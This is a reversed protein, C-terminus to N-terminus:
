EYRSFEKDVAIIYKADQISSRLDKIEVIASAHDFVKAEKNSKTWLTVGSSSTEKYFKNRNECFLIKPGNYKNKALFKNMFDICQEKSKSVFLQKRTSNYSDGLYVRFDIGAPELKLLQEFGSEVVSTKFLLNCNHKNVDRLLEFYDEFEELERSDNYYVSCLASYIAAGAIRAKQEQTFEKILKSDVFAIELNEAQSCLVSSLSKDKWEQMEKGDRYLKINDLAERVRTEESYLDEFLPLILECKAILQDLKIMEKNKFDHDSLLNLFQSESYFEQDKDDTCIHLKGYYDKYFHIIKIERNLDESFFVDNPKITLQNGNNDTTTFTKM